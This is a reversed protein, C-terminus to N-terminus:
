KLETQSLFFLFYTPLLYVLSSVTTSDSLTMLPKTEQKKM